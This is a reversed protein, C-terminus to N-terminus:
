FFLQEVFVLKHEEVLEFVLEVFGMREVLMHRVVIHQEAMSGKSGLQGVAVLQGEVLEVLFIHEVVIPAVGLQEVV